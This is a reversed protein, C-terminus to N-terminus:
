YPYDEKLIGILTGDRGYGFQNRAIGEVKGGLREALRIVHAQETIVTCRICRNTGFCWRGIERLLVRPWVSGAVTVHIDPRRMNTFVFGSVIKGNQEWGIATYPPVPASGLKEGVFAAVAEGAVIM